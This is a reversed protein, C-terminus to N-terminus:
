NTQMKRRYASPSLGTKKKFMTSMYEVHEFGARDAVMAISLETNRLLQRVKDFRYKFIAEHPTQGTVQKFRYELARRTSGASKLVDNVNIGDCAHERIFNMATAVLDDDTALVDSSLRTAVGLPPIFRDSQKLSAGQMLTDLISAAEFGTRLTDPIVSSLPPSCLECLLQDNDVGVVAIQQPVNIELERCAELVRQGLIDYCTIIGVPQPLNEIWQYLRNRQTPSIDQSANESPVDLMSYSLEAEQVLAEFHQARFRSWAFSSDGCFALQTFGRQQLHVVAEKMIACDDTEVIPVDPLVRAASVDVLPIDLKALEDAIGQNEVRAIIGDGNWTALWKPPQSGRGQEPLYISWREHEDMYRVVGNLLGRAYANSTEILLAVERRRKM